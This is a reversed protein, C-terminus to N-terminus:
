EGKDSVCKAVLEDWLPAFQDDTVKFWRDWNSAECVLLLGLRAFAGALTPFQEGWDNVVMDTWNLLGGGDVLERVWAHTTDRRIDAVLIGHMPCPVSLGQDELDGDCFVAESLQHGTVCENM